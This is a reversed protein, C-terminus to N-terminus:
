PDHVIYAGGALHNGRMADEHHFLILQESGRQFMGDTLTLGSPIQGGDGGLRNRCYVLSGSCDPPNSGIRNRHLYERALQGSQVFVIALCPFGM